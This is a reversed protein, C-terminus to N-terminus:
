LDIPSQPFKNSSNILNKFRCRRRYDDDFFNSYDDSPFVKQFTKCFQSRRFYDIREQLKEQKVKDKVCTEQITELKRIICNRFLISGTRIIGKDWRESLRNIKNKITQFSNDKSSDNILEELFTSESFSCENIAEVYDSKQIRKIGTKTLVTKVDKKRTSM